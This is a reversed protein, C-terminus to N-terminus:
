VPRSRPGDKWCRDSSGCSVSNARSMRPVIVSRNPLMDLAGEAILRAIASRVPMVSTGLSQVLQRLTVPEGPRFTGAILAQHLNSYVRKYLTENDVTALAFKRHPVAELVLGKRSGKAGKQNGKLRSQAATLM